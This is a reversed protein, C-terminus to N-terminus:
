ILAALQCEFDRRCLDGTYAAKQFIILLEHTQACYRRYITPRGFRSEFDDVMKMRHFPVFAYAHLAPNGALLRGDLGAGSNPPAGVPILVFYEIEEANVKYIMRIQGPDQHGFVPFAM